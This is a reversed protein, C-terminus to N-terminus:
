SLLDALVPGATRSGSEGTEVFVAVALDGRTAIMWTHTALSGDRRPDGYEATGTKAGVEGLGALFRGSGTTVVARMMSRLARTEGTTLPREPDASSTQGEVLYPVVASGRAVSAAVTAMTLPSALVRGQGILDAAAETETEPPPVQGFYAPFGVQHDVGLGLAAAADALDGDDLREHEAILATNCSQAIVQTLTIDGVSGAPFDDYNKFSRGDVTATRTCPLATQPTVGARLMALATVVKFTSGPAYQGATAANLGDNAPGNAAALIAGDSPRLMVAASPVGRPALRALSREARAQLDPDLTTRLDEGAAADSSFLTRLEDARDRAVVAIGPAGALRDQYRAQLGSLGVVDGERVAGDSEEIIEATAAGVRGLIPAAFDRTPALPLTDEIAAAGPIDGYTPDLDRAEEARLVVAEVFAEPGAATAREVFDAADLDLAAAIRRAAPAVQAPQTRTKDLGFRIVPRDVVIPAGGRGTIAGREATLTRLGLTDGEALDPVATDPRWDVEWRDGDDRLTATTSYDWTVEDALQWRWGLEASATGDAEDVGVVEVEVPVDALPELLASVEARAGERTLPVEALGRQSLASALDEAVDAADPGSDLLSCGSALATTTLLAGALALTTRRRAGGRSLVIM